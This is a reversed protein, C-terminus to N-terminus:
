DSNLQDRIAADPDGRAKVNGRSLIEMKREYLWYFAELNKYAADQSEHKFLWYAFILQTALMVFWIAQREPASLPAVKEYGALVYAFNELWRTHAHNGFFRAKAMDALLYGIDYVRPGQPLHDLDIFGSVEGQYFLINGLHCDGHIVQMPLGTVAAAMEDQLTAMTRKFRLWAEDRLTSQIQPVAEDAITQPLNMTWSEIHHPYLALAQHLKALAYGLNAYVIRPEVHPADAEDTPLLPYLLYIGHENEIFLQGDDALVPVAVPIDWDHLYQLLRYESDLRLANPKGLVNKLVFRNGQATTVFFTTVQLGEPKEHTAEVKEVAGIRARWLRLVEGAQQSDTM